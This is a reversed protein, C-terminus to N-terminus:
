EATNATGKRTRLLVLDVHRRLPDSMVDESTVERVFKAGLDEIGISLKMERWGLVGMAHEASLNYVFM